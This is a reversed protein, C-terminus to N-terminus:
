STREFKVKGSKAVDKMVKRSLRDTLRLAQKDGLRKGLRAQVEDRAQRLLALAEESKQKDRFARVAQLEDIGVIAVITSVV